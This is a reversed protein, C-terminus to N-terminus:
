AGIAERISGHHDQVHGILIREIAQAATMGMSGGVRDLQADDLGRVTAAAAAGNQRLLALTEAKTVRAFQVAHEANGKHVMAMDFSFSEGNAIKQVLGAVGQHGGAVHHAVVGVSWGEGATKAKWQADSLREVTAILERNEHEFQNALTRARESMYCAEEPGVTRDARHTRERTMYVGEKM